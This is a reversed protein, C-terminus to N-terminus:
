ILVWLSLVWLSCHPDWSFFGFLLLLSMLGQMVLVWGVCAIKKENSRPTPAPGQVESAARWSPENRLSENVVSIWVHFFPSGRKSDLTIDGQILYSKSVISVFIGKCIASEARSCTVAKTKNTKLFSIHMFLNSHQKKSREWSFTVFLAKIRERDFLM